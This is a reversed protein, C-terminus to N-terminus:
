GPTLFSLFWPAPNQCSGCFLAIMWTSTDDIGAFAGGSEDTLDALSFCTGTEVDAQWLQDANVSGDYNVLSLFIGELDAPAADYRAVAIRTIETPKFEQGLGNTTLDKWEIAVDPDGTPIAYTDLGELEVDYSLATSDDGIVVETNSSAPDLKFSQIMRTGAGLKTGTAPMATYITSEPPYNDVNVFPLIQEETLPEGAASLLNFLTTSTAGGEPNHIAAVAVDAQDLTDNNINQELESQTLTWVIVNLADIETSVDVPHGLFDTTLGSWDFTLESDPAVSIPPFSLTSTFTYDAAETATLMTGAMCASTDMGGTTTAMGTSSSGTDTTSSTTTADTTSAGTTSAGTTGASTGTAGGTATDGNGKSNGCGVVAVLLTLPLIKAEHKM